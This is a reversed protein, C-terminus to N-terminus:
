GHLVQLFLIEYVPLLTTYNEYVTMDFYNFTDRKLSGKNREREEPAKVEEREPIKSCPVAQDTLIMNHFNCVEAQAPQHSTVSVSGMSSGLERDFPSCWLAECVIGEGDLRIDPTLFINMGEKNM